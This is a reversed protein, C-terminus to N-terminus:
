KRDATGCPRTRGLCPSQAQWSQRGRIFDYDAKVLFLKLIGHTPTDALWERGGYLWWGAAEEFAALSRGRSM